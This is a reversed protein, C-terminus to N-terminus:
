EGVVGPLAIQTGLRLVTDARKVARNQLIDGM